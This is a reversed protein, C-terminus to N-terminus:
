KVDEKIIDMGEKIIYGLGTRKVLPQNFFQQTATRDLWSFMGKEGGSLVNELYSTTKTVPLTLTLLPASMMGVTPGTARSVLGAAPAIVPTRTIGYKALDSVVPIDLGSGVAMATFWATSMGVLAKFPATDGAEYARAVGRLYNTYHMPWSVFRAMRATAWHQGAIDLAQPRFYRNYNFLNQRVALTTYRSVFEELNRSSAMLYERDYKSFSTLHLDRILSNQAKASGKVLERAYKDYTRTAHISAAAVGQNRATIDSLKFPTSAMDFWKQMKSSPSYLTYQMVDMYENNWYNNAAKVFINKQRDGMISEIKDTQAILATKKAMEVTAPDFIKTFGKEGSRGSAKLYHVTMSPATYAGKLTPALGIFQSNTIGQVANFAQLKPNMGLVVATNADVFDAFFKALGSEPQARKQFKNNWQNDLGDVLHKVTRHIDRHKVPIRDGIQKGLVDVSAASLSAANILEQGFAHIESRTSGNWYRELAEVPDVQLEVDKSLKSGVIRSYGSYSIKRQSYDSLSIHPAKEKIAKHVSEKHEPTIRLPWFTTGVDGYNGATLDINKWLIRDSPINEADMFHANGDYRGRSLDHRSYKQDIRFANILKNASRLEEPKLGLRKFTDADVEVSSKMLGINTETPRINRPNHQQIYEVIKQRSQPNHKKLEIVSSQRLGSKVKEIVQADRTTFQHFRRLASDNIGLSTFIHGITSTNDGINSVLMDFASLKFEEHSIIEKMALQKETLLNRYIHQSLKKAEEPKLRSLIGDISKDVAMRKVEDVPKNLGSAIIRMMDQPHRYHALEPIMRGTAENYAQTKGVDSIAKMVSGYERTLSKTFSEKQQATLDKLFGGTTVLKKTEALTKGTAKSLAEARSNVINEAVFSKINFRSLFSEVGKVTTADIDDYIARSVNPKVKDTFSQVKDSMWGDFYKAQAKDIQPKMAAQTKAVTGQPHVHVAREALGHGKELLIRNWGGARNKASVLLQSM